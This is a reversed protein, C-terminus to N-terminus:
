KKHWIIALVDFFQDLFSPIKLTGIPSPTSSSTLIPTPPHPQQNHPPPPTTCGITNDFDTKTYKQHNKQTYYDFKMINLELYNIMNRAPPPSPPPSQTPPRNYRDGIGEGVFKPKGFFNLVIKVNRLINYKGIIYKFFNRQAQM